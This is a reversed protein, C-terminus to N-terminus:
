SREFPEINRLMEHELATLRPEVHMELRFIRFCVHPEDVGLHGVLENSVAAAEIANRM